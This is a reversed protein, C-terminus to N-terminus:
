KPRVVGASFRAFISNKRKYLLYIDLCIDGLQLASASPQPQVFRKVVDNSNL